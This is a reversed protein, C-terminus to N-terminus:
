LFRPILIKKQIRPKLALFVVHNGSKGRYNFIQKYELNKHWFFSTMELNVEVTFFRSTDSTKICFFYADTISTKKALYFSGLGEIKVELKKRSVKNLCKM